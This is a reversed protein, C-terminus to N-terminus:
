HRLTAPIEADDLRIPVFRRGSSARDLFITAQRELLPWATAFAHESMCLVLTRSTELARELEESFSSDHQQDFWVRLGANELHRSLVGAVARDAASASLFVDYEFRVSM